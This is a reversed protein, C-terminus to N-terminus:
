KSYIVYSVGNDKYIMYGRAATYEENSPKAALQGHNVDRQSVYKDFASGIDPITGAVSFLVGVEVIEKGAGDYEIMYAGDVITDDLVVLPKKEIEVNESRIDTADWIYHTYKEGYAVVKGDRVWHTAGEEECPVAAGYISDGIPVGNVNVKEEGTLIENETYKAVANTDAYVDDLVLEKGLATFWGIFSHGILTMEPLEKIDNKEIAGLYSKDQNWFKIIPNDSVTAENKEYVATLFTNTYVKIADNQNLATLKSTGDTEINNEDAVGRKWGIFTYGDVDPAVVSIERGAVGNLIQLNGSKGDIVVEAIDPINTTATFVSKSVPTEAPVTSGWNDKEVQETFTISAPTIAGSEDSGQNFILIYEKNSDLFVENTDTITMDSVAATGKNCINSKGVMTCVDSVGLDAFLTAGERAYLEEGEALSVKGYIINGESFKEALEQTLEAVYMELDTTGNKYIYARGATLKYAATKPVKIGFALWEGKNAINTLISDGIYIYINKQQAVSITTGLYKWKKSFDDTEPYEKYRWNGAKLELREPNKSSREADETFQYTISALETANGAFATPVVGIILTLVLLLSLLKKM